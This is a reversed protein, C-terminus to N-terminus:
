ESFTTSTMIHWNQAYVELIKTNGGEGKFYYWWWKCLGSLTQHAYSIGMTWNDGNNDQNMALFAGSRHQRASGAALWSHKLSRPHFWFFWGTSGLGSRQCLIMVQVCPQKLGSCKPHSRVCLYSDLVDKKKQKWIKINNLISLTM